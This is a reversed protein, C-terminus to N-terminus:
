SVHITNYNWLKGLGDILINQPKIDFHVINESHLAKLGHLVPAAISQVINLDVPCNLQNLSLDCPELLMYVFGGAVFAQHFDVLYDSTRFKQLVNLEHWVSRLQSYSHPSEVGGDEVVEQFLDKWNKDICDNGHEGVEKKIYEMDDKINIRKVVVRKRMDPDDDEIIECLPIAGNRGPEYEEIVELWDIRHPFGETVELGLGDRLIEVIFSSDNEIQETDSVTLNEAPPDGTQPNHQLERQQAQDSDSVEGHVQMTDDSSGSNDDEDKHVHFNRSRGDGIRFLRRAGSILPM